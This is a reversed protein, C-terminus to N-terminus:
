ICRQEKLYDMLKKKEFEQAKVYNVVCTLTKPPVYGPVQLVVRGEKNYFIIHPYSRVGLIDVLKDETTTMEKGDLKIFVPANSEALVRYVDMDKLTQILEQNTKLDKDLQKCYICGQSEVILMAYDKRPILSKSESSASKGKQCSTLMLVFLILFM